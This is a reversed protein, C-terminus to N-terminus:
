PGVMFANSAASFFARAASRCFSSSSSKLRCFLPVPTVDIGAVKRRTVTATQLIFSSNLLFFYSPIVCARITRAPSANNLRQLTSPKLTARAVDVVENVPGSHIGMRLAIRPREKLARAIELACQAPAEPDTRFVLAM